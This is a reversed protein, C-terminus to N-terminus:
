LETDLRFDSGEELTSELTRRDALLGSHVEPLLQHYGLFFM